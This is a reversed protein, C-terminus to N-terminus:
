SAHLRPAPILPFHPTLTSSLICPCLLIALSFITDATTLRTSYKTRSSPLAFSFLTVM